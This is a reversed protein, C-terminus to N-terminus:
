KNPKKTRELKEMILLSFHYGKRMQRNQKGDIYASGLASFMQQDAELSHSEVGRGHRRSAPLSCPMWLESGCM